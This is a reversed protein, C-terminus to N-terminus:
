SHAKGSCETNVFVIPLRKLFLKLIIKGQISNKGGTKNETKSVAGTDALISRDKALNAVATETRMTIESQGNGSQGNENWQQDLHTV